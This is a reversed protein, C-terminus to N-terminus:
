DKLHEYRAPMEPMRNTILDSTRYIRGNWEAWNKTSNSSIWKIFENLITFYPKGDGDSKEVDSKKIGNVEIFLLSELDRKKRNLNEARKLLPKLSENLECLELEVKYLESQDSM